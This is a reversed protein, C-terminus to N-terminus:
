IPVVQQLVVMEPCVWWQIAERTGFYFMSVNGIYCSWFLYLQTFGPFKHYIDDVGDQFCKEIKQPCYIDWQSGTRVTRADFNKGCVKDCCLQDNSAVNKAYAECIPLDSYSLFM